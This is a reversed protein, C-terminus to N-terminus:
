VNTRLFACYRPPGRLSGAPFWAKRTPFELWGASQLRRCEELPRTRVCDVSEEQTHFYRQWGPEAAATRAPLRGPSKHGSWIDKRVSRRVPPLLSKGASIPVPSASLLNEVLPRPPGKGM